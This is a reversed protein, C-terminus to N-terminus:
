KLLQSKAQCQSEIWDLFKAKWAVSEVADSEVYNSSANEKKLQQLHWVRYLNNLGPVTSHVDHYAVAKVECIQSLSDIYVLLSTLESSASANPSICDALLMMKFNM